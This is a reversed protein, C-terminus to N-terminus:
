ARDGYIETRLQEWGLERAAPRLGEGGVSADPLRFRSEARHREVVTRLGEEVYARLTTGEERALGQAERLLAEPLDITTKMSSVM